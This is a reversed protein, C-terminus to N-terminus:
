KTISHGTTRSRLRSSFRANAPRYRGGPALTSLSFQQDEPFPQQLDTWPPARIVDADWTTM